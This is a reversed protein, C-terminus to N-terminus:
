HFQSQLESTHEESRLLIAGREVAEAFYGKEFVYNGNEDLTPMWILDGVGHEESGTVEIVEQGTLKGIWKPIASKSVAQLGELILFDGRKLSDLVKKAYRLTTPVPVLDEWAHFERKDDQDAKPPSPDRSEESGSLIVDKYHAVEGDFESKTITRNLYQRIDQTGRPLAKEM